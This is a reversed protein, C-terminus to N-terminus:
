RKDAGRAPAAMSQFKDKNYTVERNSQDAAASSEPNDVASPDEGTM